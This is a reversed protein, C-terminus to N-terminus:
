EVRINAERIVQVLRAREAKLFLALAEPKDLHDPGLMDLAELRARLTGSARAKDWVQALLAVIPRPTGAPALTMIWGLYEFGRIGAEHVTPTQPMATLRERTTVALARLRGSRVHSLAVNPATFMLQIQGSVLDNVALVDGKYPVHLMSGGAARAFLEGCLHGSSGIGGSGFSVVGPKAKILAMLQALNHAPTSPHVALVFAGAGLLAIPVFNETTFSAKPFIHPAVLVTSPGTILLTHGDPEARAAEGAALTGSAGARNEVVFNQGLAATAADSFLRAM